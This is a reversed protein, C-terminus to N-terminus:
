SSAPSRCGHVVVREVPTDAPMARVVDTWRGGNEPPTAPKAIRFYLGCHTSVVISLDHVGELVIAGPLELLRTVAIGPGLGDMTRFLTDAVTLRYVRDDAIEVELPSGNVGVIVKGRTGGEGEQAASDSLVICRTRISDRPDGIQVPGVGNDTLQYQDCTPRVTESPAVAVPAAVAAVAVPAGAEEVPTSDAADASPPPTPPADHRPKCARGAGGLVLMCISLVRPRPARRFPTGPREATHKMVKVKM